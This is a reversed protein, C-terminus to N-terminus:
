KDESQVFYGFHGQQWHERVAEITQLIKGCTCVVYSGYCRAMIENWTSNVFKM